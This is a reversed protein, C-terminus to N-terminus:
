KRDVWRKGPIPKCDGVDVVGRFISTIGYENSLLYKIEGIIEEARRWVHELEKEDLFMVQFNQYFPTWSHIANDRFWRLVVCVTQQYTTYLQIREIYIADGVRQDLFDDLTVHQIIMNPM